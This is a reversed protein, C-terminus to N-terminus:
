AWFVVEPTHTSAAVSQKVGCFDSFVELFWGVTGLLEEFRTRVNECTSLKGFVGEGPRVSKELSFALVGLRLRVGVAGVKVPCTLFVVM